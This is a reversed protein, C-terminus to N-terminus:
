RSLSLRIALHPADPGRVQRGEAIRYGPIWVIEGDAELLPVRDRRRAPVRADILIDKLKRSGPAGLPRFRDGPRRTRLVLARIGELSEADFCAQDPLLGPGDTRGHVIGRGFRAEATLGAEPIHTIGPVRLPAHFGAAAPGRRVTLRDYERNLAWGAGLPIKESGEGPGRDEMQELLAATALRHPVGSAALWALATRRRLAAPLGQFPALLLDGGAMCQGLAERTSSEMVDNEDRAVGAARALTAVIEPNFRSALLPLLENRVLNRLHVPDRNSADDRWPLGHAELFARLAARRFGLLPRVIRLAGISTEPAMGGLGGPGAGRVLKLLLTEAQDDATHGLAVCDGGSAEIARAFFDLRAERAAMEISLGRARALAGVDAREAYFPLGLRGALERVFQEDADADAGRLGHHLHAVSPRWDRDRALSHLLYVLATSDSGGSAGIVASAGRPLLADRDIAESVARRLNM